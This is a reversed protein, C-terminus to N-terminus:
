KTPLHTTCENHTRYTYATRTARSPISYNTTTLPARMTQQRSDVIRVIASTIAGYRTQECMSARVM